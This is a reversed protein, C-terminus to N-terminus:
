RECFFHYANQKYSIVTIQFIISRAEEVRLVSVYMCLFDHLVKKNPHFIFFLAPSRGRSM